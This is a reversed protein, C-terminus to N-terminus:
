QRSHFSKLILIIGDSLVTVNISCYSHNRLHYCQLLHPFIWLLASVGDTIGVEPSYVDSDKGGAATFETLVILMKVEDISDLALEDDRDILSVDNSAFEPLLRLSVDM